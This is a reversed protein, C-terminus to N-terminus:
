TRGYRPQPGPRPAPTCGSLSAALFTVAFALTVSAALVALRLADGNDRLFRLAVAPDSFAEPTWGSATRLAGEAILGAGALSARGM